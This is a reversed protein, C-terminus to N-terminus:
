LKLFAIKSGSQEYYEIRKALHRELIKMGDVDFDWIVTKSKPAHPNSFPNAKAFRVSRGVAGQKTKIESTGGQLNVTHTMNYINTGTSICSTGILVMVEGRNFKEVSESPNVKEIGLEALREKKVEAHALAFPVQMLAALASVQSLEDVLILTQGKNVKAESNALKAAFAMINMNNLLHVRKMELPDGSQFNPNSSKVKVVRFEHPAIYGGQVAEATGLTHVIKGIVSFLLKESGDGRTQTGSFFMRYPVDALVGHCVEELTESAFTHSEDVLIMQLGSFFEWEPTDPKVNTLSDGICITFQKGIKKKGAGFTGVKSKGFHHEFKEVLELFISKSPVVIATRFGTDRCAQLLCATKGTGTALSVSGHKEAILKKVSESQYPYLSFPLPKAWPIGKPTPYVVEDTVEINLREQLYPISGPRIYEGDDGSFILTTNVAAKLEDYKAEWSYLNRSKWIHNNAHRKVLYAASTNAYSLLKVMEFREIPSIEVILAVAPSIKKIKM